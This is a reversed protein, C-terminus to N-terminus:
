TILIPQTDSSTSGTILVNRCSTPENVKAAPPPAEHCTAVATATMRCRFESVSNHDVRINLNENDKRLIRIYESLKLVIDVLNETQKDTYEGDTRISALQAHLNVDLSSRAVTGSAYDAKQTSLQPTDDSRGARRKM